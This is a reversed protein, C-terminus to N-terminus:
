PRTLIQCIGAALGPHGQSYFQEAWDYPQWFKISQEGVSYLPTYWGIEHTQVNLRAATCNRKAGGEDLYVALDEPTTLYEGLVRIPLLAQLADRDYDLPRDALARDVQRQWNRPSRPNGLPDTRDFPEVDPTIYVSTTYVQPIGSIGPYTLEMLYGTFGNEPPDLPVRFVGDQDAQIPSDSWASAGVIPHRFDRADPNTAQWLKAQVPPPDSNVVLEEHENLYSDIVPRDFGYLQAQYWAILGMLMEELKGTFGHNTNPLIRQLTEGPFEHIYYRSADPLFFEDGTVNIILQPMNLTHRYSIPDVLSALTKGEPSRINDTIGNAVYGALAESYFGYSNYHHELQEAIHLINFEGPVVATVRPDM